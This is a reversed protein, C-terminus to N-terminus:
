VVLGYPRVIVARSFDLPYSRTTCASPPTSGPDSTKEARRGHLERAVKTGLAFALRVLETGVQIALVAIAPFIRDLPHDRIHGDAFVHRGQEGVHEFVHLGLVELLFLEHVQVQHVIGLRLRLKHNEGDVRKDFIGLIGVREDTRQGNSRHSAQTSLLNDVVQGHRKVAQEIVLTWVHALCGHQANRLQEAEFGLERDLTAKDITDLVHDRVVIGHDHGVGDRRECIDVLHRLERVAAPMGRKHQIRVHEHLQQHRQVLARFPATNCDEMGERRVSTGILALRLVYTLADHWLELMGVASDDKAGDLDHQHMHLRRALGLKDLLEHSLHRRRQDRENRALGLHLPDRQAVDIQDQLLVRVNQGVLHADKEALVIVRRIDLGLLHIDHDPQRIFAIHIHQQALQLLVGGLDVHVKHAAGDARNALTRNRNLRGGLAADIHQELQDMRPRTVDHLLRRDHDLVNEALVRM